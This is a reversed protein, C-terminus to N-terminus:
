PEPNLPITTPNIESESRIVNPLPFPVRIFASKPQIAVRPVSQTFVRRRFEAKPGFNLLLGVQYAPPKLYNVLQAEHETAIAEATKVEIIIQEEVFLDAFYEGVVEDEYTCRLLISSSSKWALAQAACNRLANEYVRRSSDM